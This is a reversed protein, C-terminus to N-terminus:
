GHPPAEARIAARHGQLLYVIVVGVVASIAALIGVMTYCASAYGRSLFAVYGHDM